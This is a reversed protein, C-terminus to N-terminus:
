VAIPRVCMYVYILDCAVSKFTYKCIFVGLMLFVFMIQYIHVCVYEMLVRAHAFMCGCM